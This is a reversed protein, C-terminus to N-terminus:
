HNHKGLTRESPSPSRNKIFIIKDGQISPARIVILKTDPGASFNEVVTEPWIVYFDGKEAKVPQGNVIFEVNGSFIINIEVTQKHLHKDQPAPSKNSIDQWALEVLDSKLLENDAFQGFFWGKTKSYDAVKGILYKGKNQDLTM